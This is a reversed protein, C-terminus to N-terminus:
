NTLFQQALPTNNNKYANPWLHMYIEELEEPANNTYVLTEFGHIFHEKDDLRVEITYALQQQWYNQGKSSISLALMFLSLFRLKM